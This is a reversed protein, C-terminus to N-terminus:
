GDLPKKRRKRKEARVSDDPLMELGKKFGDDLWFALLARIVGGLTHGEREARMHVDQYMVEDTKVTITKDRPAPRPTTRPM